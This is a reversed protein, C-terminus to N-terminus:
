HPQKSREERATEFRRALDNEGATKLQDILDQYQPYAAHNEADALFEILQTQKNAALPKMLDAFTKAHQRAYDVTAQQLYAPADAEYHSDKSLQM